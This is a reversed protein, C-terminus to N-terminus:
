GVLTDEIWRAARAAIMAVVANPHGRPVSPMVSADAIWLNEVGRVRLRPDVVAQADSGMRCTSTPHFITDLDTEVYALFDRDSEVGAGPTLEGTNYAALPHTAAIKRSLRLGELLVSADIGNPDSLLGFDIGLPELPDPSKLTLRGRSQPAVVCSVLTFAHDQAAERIDGPIFVIELDPAVVSGSRIQTFAFGEAISSALIGRRFLYYLLLNRLSRAAKLTNTSNTGYVVKSTPHDQLNKGVEPRDVHVPIEFKALTTAPGIGSLMLLQPSGIAGASLAVARCKYTEEVTGRRITVGAARHGDLVVKTAHADTIVELNPRRMAPVLYADYASFRKGDKQALEVLWAGQYRHGNYHETKNLGARRAADVFLHSLPRASRNPSITMPGERGRAPDGDDGLWREQARFTPRVDAWGWGSAGAEVWGDFDAPHCWQHLQANMNSSGGLMKGRPVFMRRGGASAQPESEFAWDVESRFLEPWAAPVSIFRNKPMGGTEILLVRIGGSSTLREALVSGATGAGVIVLDYTDEM